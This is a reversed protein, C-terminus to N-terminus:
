RMWVAVLKRCKSRWHCDKEDCFNKNTQFCPLHLCANQIAHVLEAEQHMHEPQHVGVFGALRQLDLITLSYEDEKFVSLFLNVKMEAYEKEAELWDDLENGPKFSRTESKYYASELIWKERASNAQKIPDCKMDFDNKRANPKQLHPQPDKRKCGEQEPKMNSGMM